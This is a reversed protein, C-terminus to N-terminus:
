ERFEACSCGDTTCATGLMDREEEDEDIAYQHAGAPHSCSKCQKGILPTTDKNPDM